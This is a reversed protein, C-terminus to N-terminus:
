GKALSMPAGMEQSIAGAVDDLRKQFVAIIRGLLAIREDRSTQSYGEFAARAAAVALDVDERNGLAITAVAEETAPNIVEISDKGKPEVWQGAIYFQKQHSM